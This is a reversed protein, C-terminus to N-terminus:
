RAVVASDPESVGNLARAVKFLDGTRYFDVALLNPVMKRERRCQRARKLLVAYANVIAANSPKSAPATEIWHNILFLSGNRGGRNPRCSFEEPSHFGYPTEQINGLMLHYWPVGTTDNEAYVVVREDRAVMDGLTPWPSTVPGKYVFDILGSKEFSAAVDAPKVGEDQIVIIVVEDPHTQLYDKMDHLTDVFRTAGLECFGHALYIDREGEPEGVLRNRIRMAAELGEKGLVAEYKKVANVEDQLVTRIRGKVPDGYHIDILFGRVGDELQDEISREQNAFMWNQISAASMSNHTTPFVVENLPRDRLEPYGNVAVIARPGISQPAAPDRMLWYAAGGVLAAVLLIAVAVPLLSRGKAKATETAASPGHGAFRTATTFVDQLGIFLFLGGALVAVVQLTPIPHLAVIVGAAILGLGRLIMTTPRRPRHRLVRWVLGLTAPADIRELLSTVSATLVIGLGALIIMRLALPGVFVPWLGRLLDEGVETRAFGALISGGFNAFAAVLFASVTLGLGLGLLYRDKRRASLLGLTGFAFGAVLWILARRQLRQGTRLIKMLLKGSPWDEGAGLVFAAKSPLKDAIGPNTALAEKVIVQADQLTLSLDAGHKIFIPHLKRAAQRVLARFPPSAVIQQVAGLVIPRYPTLERQYNVIQETIQNAVVRAVPPEALSDAVRASFVVPDFLIRTAYTMIVGYLLGAICLAGLLVAATTRLRNM